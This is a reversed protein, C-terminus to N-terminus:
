YYVFSRGIRRNGVQLIAFYIGAPLDPLQIERTGGLAGTPFLEFNIIKQGLANVIILKGTKGLQYDINLADGTPNPWLNQFEFQDKDGERSCENMLIDASKKLNLRGGSRTLSDLGIIPDTGEMIADKIKLALASPNQQAEAYISLCPLSYLFAIAGTLHPTAASTGSFNSYGGNLVTTLIAEGPAGMDISKKGYGSNAPKQDEQNTRLTTVLFDTPCTTPMDGQIDVDVNVNPPSATSLIGASGLLAYMDRWAPQDDCFTFDLGLSTNVVVVFAGEKGQSSNFQKRQSLLYDFSAIIHSVKRVSFLMMKVKWNIGSIGIGNNGVAGIIGTVSQGHINNPHQPSDSTFNWGNEDDIFGNQDNDLGDNLVEATNRWINTQLDPHQPDFGSDIIAVVIEKGNATLGGTSLDWADPAQIKSLSWQREVQPDSPLRRFDIEQDLSVSLVAPHKRLRQSWQLAETETGLPLLYANLHVSLRKSSRAIKKEAPLIQSPTYGEKLRLILDFEQACVQGSLLFIFFVLSINRFAVEM